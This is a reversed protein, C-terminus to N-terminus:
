YRRERFDLTEENLLDRTQNWGDCTCRIKKKSSSRYAGTQRELSSEDSGKFTIIMAVTQRAGSM